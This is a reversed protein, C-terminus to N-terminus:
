MPAVMEVQGLVAFSAGFVVGIRYLQLNNGVFFEYTSTLALSFVQM